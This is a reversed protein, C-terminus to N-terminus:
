IIFMGIKYATFSLLYAISIGYVVSFVTWKLSQTERKIAAITAVCPVYLLVFVMLAYAVAANIGNKKMKEKINGEGGSYLVSITSVFIEKAIIGTGLAVTERWTMGLPEFIPELSHGMRGLYSKEMKEVKKDNYLQEKLKEKKSGNEMQSIKSERLKITKSYDIDTPFYTLVWIFIAGILIVGGMKKLFMSARDWMHILLSKGTPMRYPPLEMVFPISESKFFFTKLLKATIVAVVIGLVYISLFIIGANKSFFMGIMLTYVPLRASCSMFPNVLATVIRDEENELTRAAMIGPVNCGFGMFLSIFAKGHLGLFHMAKDMLFAVRAMYGTDELIAIMLFLLVIQPLFVLVGGVGGIIGDILLDNLIGQPIFMEILKAILGVGNEIFESLVGGLTFTLNFTFWLIFAFIPLGIWRNLVIKDIKETLDIRNINKLNLKVCEKSAGSAFGYKQETILEKPSDNYLNTLRKIEKDRKQYIKEKLDSKQLIEDVKEDEKLINIAMWRSSYKFFKNEKKIIKEVKKISKELEKDYILNPNREVKSKKEIKKIITDLLEDVGQSKKAVIPTVSSKLFTSLKEFDIKIGKSKVEDYMNLAMFFNTELEILQSTLYLSRELNTGDVINIIIDPKEDIIFNRAVIEEASNPELSYIGPLDVVDIKYDKYEFSGELKEVTVGSWNGVHQNGGTLDNFLTTKGSNPNGILALKLNKM